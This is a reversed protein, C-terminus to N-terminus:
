FITIPFTVNTEVAVEKVAGVPMVPVVVIQEPLEVVKVAVPPVNVDWHNVPEHPPMETPVPVEIVTEGVVAVM